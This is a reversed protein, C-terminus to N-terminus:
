RGTPENPALSKAWRSAAKARRAGGGPEACLAVASTVAWTKYKAPASHGAWINAIVPLLWPLLSDPHCPDPHCPCTSM